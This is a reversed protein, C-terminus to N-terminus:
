FFISFVNIYTKKLDLMLFIACLKRILYIFVNQSLIFIKRTYRCAIAPFFVRITYYVTALRDLDGVGATPLNESVLDALKSIWCRLFASVKWTGLGFVPFEQGNNFKIKPVKNAMNTLASRVIGVVMWVFIGSYFARSEIKM